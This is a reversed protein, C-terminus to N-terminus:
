PKIVFPPQCCLPHHNAFSPHSYTMVVGEKEYDVHMCLLQADMPPLEAQPPRPKGSKLLQDLYEWSIVYQRTMRPAPKHSVNVPINLREYGGSENVIFTPAKVKM